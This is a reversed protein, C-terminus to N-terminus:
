FKVLLFLILNQDMETAQQSHASLDVGTRKALMLIRYPFCREGLLGVKLCYRSFVQCFEGEPEHDWSADSAHLPELARPAPDVSQHTQEEDM